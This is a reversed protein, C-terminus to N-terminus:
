SQSRAGPLTWGLSHQQHEYFRAFAGGRDLLDAVTGDERVKGDDLFIVRDAHQITSPRHAIVIRFRHPRDEAGDDSSNLAAVIATENETDLASTAEDILLIPAPKLLARAISIRQREGGSLALGAEGVASQAGTPLRALRSPADVHGTAAEAERDRRTEMARGEMWYAQAHIEAKPFGLDHRLRSRLHRLSGSEPTAWTYWNSWDRAEIAAALSGTSTRPIRHLRLRPHPALPILADSPHQQELYVELPIHSPVVEIITNFAPISAADGILLYGAPPEEPVTFKATGLVMAQIRAGPEVIAAWACASGAPEHLVFDIAFEGTAADVVSITYGRQFQAASGAPDPFWMRIWVTPGPELEDFLTESHLWIRRFRPALEETRLVVLDHDVAGMSKLM